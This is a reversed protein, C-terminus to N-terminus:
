KEEKLAEGCYPCYQYDHSNVLFQHQAEVTDFNRRLFLAGFILLVLLGLATYRWWWLKMELRRTEENDSLETAM